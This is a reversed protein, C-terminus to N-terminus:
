PIETYEKDFKICIVCWFIICGMSLFTCSIEFFNEEVNTIDFLIIKLIKLIFGFLFLLNICSLYKMHQNHRSKIEFSKYLYSVITIGGSIIAMFFLKSLINTIFAYVGMAIITEILLAYVVKSSCYLNIISMAQAQFKDDNYFYTELLFVSLCVAGGICCCLLNFIECNTLAFLMSFQFLILIFLEKM